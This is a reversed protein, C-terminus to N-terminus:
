VLINLFCNHQTRISSLVSLRIMEDHQNYIIKTEAKRHIGIFVSGIVSSLLSTESILFQIM